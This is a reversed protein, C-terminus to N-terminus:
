IHLAVEHSGNEPAPFPLWPFKPPVGLSSGGLWIAPFKLWFFGRMETIEWIPSGNQNEPMEVFKTFHKPITWEQDSAIPDFVPEFVRNCYKKGGSYARHFELIERGWCGWVDMLLDAVLFFRVRGRTAQIAVAM